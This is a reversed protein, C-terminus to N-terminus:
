MGSLNRSDNRKLHSKSAARTAPAKCDGALGFVKLMPAIKIFNKNTTLTNKLDLQFTIVRSGLYLDAFM